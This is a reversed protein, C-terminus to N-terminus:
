PPATEGSTLPGHQFRQQQQRQKAGTKDSSGLRLTSRNRWRALRAAAAVISHAPRSSSSKSGALASIWNEFRSRPIRADTRM